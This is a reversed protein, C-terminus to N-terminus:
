KVNPLTIVAKFLDGDIIVSFKGGMLEVLSKAISLGLGSGETHRSSEGRVFRETLEDARINLADKSVNKISISSLESGSALDIYVRTGPMAYKIVNGLLNDLVRCLLRGDANVVVSNEPLGSVIELKKESLRDTYEGVTQAVLVRADCPALSVEMNGTSAKSADILDTILKKLRESQRALVSVYESIKPNDSQEKSILDTYNIISTLPTKIDHSVNTILETKMRESKMREGVAANMGSMTSNLAEGHERLPRIMGTTDTKASYDGSALRKAADRLRPLVSALYILGALTLASLLFWFFIRAGTSAASAFLLAAFSVICFCVFVMPFTKIKALGRFIFLVFRKIARLIFFIVTNRWWRGNKIRAAFDVCWGLMLAMAGLLSLLCGIFLPLEGRDARLLLAFLAAMGIVAGACVATVLDFPLRAIPGIFIGEAGERHGASCMLLVFASVALLLLLGFIAYGWYRLSYAYGALESVTRFVDGNPTDRLVYGTIFIAEPNEYEGENYYSYSIGYSYATSLPLESGYLIKGDTDRVCVTMNGNGLRDELGDYDGTVCCGGLEYLRHAAIDSFFYSRAEAETGTYAGILHDFVIVGASFLTAAILLLTIIFVATKVAMNCIFKGKEKKVRAGTKPRYVTVDEESM